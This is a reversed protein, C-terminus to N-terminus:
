QDLTLNITQTQSGRQITLSVQTAASLQGLLNITQAPNNLSQGNIATVLDGPHLGTGEFLNKHEGPYIRYGTL